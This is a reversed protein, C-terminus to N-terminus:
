NTCRGNKKHHKNSHHYGLLIKQGGSSAQSSTRVMRLGFFSHLATDPTHFTIQRTKYRSYCGVPTVVTLVHIYLRTKKKNDVPSTQKLIEMRSEKQKPISSFLGAVQTYHSNTLSFGLCNDQAKRSEPKRPYRM